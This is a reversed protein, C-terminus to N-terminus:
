LKHTHLRHLFTESSRSDVNFSKASFKFSTNRPRLSNGFGLIRVRLGSHGELLCNLVGDERNL